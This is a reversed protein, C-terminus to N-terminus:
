VPLRAEPDGERALPPKADLRDVAAVGVEVGVGLRESPLDVLSTPLSVGHEARTPEVELSAGDDDVAGVPLGDTDGVLREARRIRIPPSPCSSRSPPGPQLMRIRHPPRVARRAAPLAAM